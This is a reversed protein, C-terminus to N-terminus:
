KKLYYKTREACYKCNGKHTFLGGVDVGNYVYIYECGDLVIVKYDKLEQKASHNICSTFSYIIVLIFFVKTLTSILSKTKM